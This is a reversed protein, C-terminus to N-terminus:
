YRCSETCSAIETGDAARKRKRGDQREFLFTISANNQRSKRANSSKKAYFLSSYIKTRISAPDSIVKWYGNSDWELFRGNRRTVDALLQGVIDQSEQIDDDQNRLMDHFVANGPHGINSTGTKFVVDSMAPCDVVDAGGGINSNIRMASEQDEVIRRGRMWLYLQKTKLNNSDTFPLVTFCHFLLAAFM